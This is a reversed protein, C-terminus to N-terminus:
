LLENDSKIVTTGGRLTFELSQFGFYNPTLSCKSYFDENPGAYSKIIDTVNNGDQDTVYLIDRPGRKVQIPMCYKTGNYYYNLVYKNKSVQVVNNYFKKILMTRVTSVIAKLNTTNCIFSTKNVINRFIPTLERITQNKSVFDMTFDQVRTKIQNCKESIREENKDIYESFYQGCFMGVGVTLVSAIINM